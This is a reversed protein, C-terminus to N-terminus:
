SILQQQIFILGSLLAIVTGLSLIFHFHVVVYLTDHLTIDVFQNGLIVGSSGGITFMLLFIMILFIICTGLLKITSTSGLYSCIWNFLKSGTPLSIMLTIATFYARTDCELSIIFMHHCWVISGLISICSMVLIMILNGFIILILNDILMSCIFGFSPLVLIYVEPHGFFWFLHQYFIPDSGYTSDYFITNYHLDLIILSLAGSLV